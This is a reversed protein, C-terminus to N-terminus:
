KSSLNREMMIKWNETNPEMEVCDDSDCELALMTEDLMLSFRDYEEGYDDDFYNVFQEPYLIRAYFDEGPMWHFRYHFYFSEFLDKSIAIRDCSELYTRESSMGPKPLEAHITSGWCHIQLWARDFCMFTMLDEPKIMLRTETGETKFDLNRTISQLEGTTKDNWFVEIEAGRWAYFHMLHGLCPMVDIVFAPEGELSMKVSVPAKGESLWQRDEPSLRALSSYVEYTASCVSWDGELVGTGKGKKGILWGVPNPLADPDVIATDRWGTHSLYAAMLSLLDWRAASKPNSLLHKRVWRAAKPNCRVIDETLEEFLWPSKERVYAGAIHLIECSVWLLKKKNGRM